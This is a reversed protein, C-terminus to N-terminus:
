HAFQSSRQQQQLQRTYARLSILCRIFEVWSLRDAPPASLTGDTATPRENLIATFLAEVHAETPETQTTWFCYSIATQVDRLSLYSQHDSDFAYFFRHLVQMSESTLAGRSHEKLAALVKGDNDSLNQRDIDSHDQAWDIQDNVTHWTTTLMHMDYLFHALVCPWLLGGTGLYLSAYVLANASQGAVAVQNEETRTATPDIHNLGFLVAQGVFAVAVSQTLHFFLIPVLFRFIVEQTLASAGTLLMTNQLSNWSSTSLSTDDESYVDASTRQRRGFLTVVMNTTAFQLRSTPRHAALEMAKELGLMAGVSTGTWLLSEWPSAMMPPGDATTMWSLSLIDPVSAEGQSTTVVLALVSVVGLLGLQGVVLDRIMSHNIGDEPPLGTKPTMITKKAPFPLMDM